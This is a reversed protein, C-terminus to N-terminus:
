VFLGLYEYGNLEEPIECGEDILFDICEEETMESLCQGVEAEVAYTPMSLMVLILVILTVALVRKM